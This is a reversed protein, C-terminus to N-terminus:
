EDSVVFSPSDYEGPRATRSRARIRRSLSRIVVIGGRAEGTDPIASQMAHPSANKWCEAASPLPLTSSAEDDPAAVNAALSSSAAGSREFSSWTGVSHLTNAMLEITVSSTAQSSAM